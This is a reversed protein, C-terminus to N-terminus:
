RTVGDSNSAHCSTQLLHTVMRLVHKSFPASMVMLHNLRWWGASLKLSSGPMSHRMSILPWCSPRQFRSPHQAPPRAKALGRM